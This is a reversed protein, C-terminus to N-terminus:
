SVFTYIFFLGTDHCPISGPNGERVLEFHDVGYIVSLSYDIRVYVLM